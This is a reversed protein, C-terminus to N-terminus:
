NRKALWADYAQALTHDWAKEKRIHALLPAGPLMKEFLEINNTLIEFLQGQDQADLRTGIIFTLVDLNM